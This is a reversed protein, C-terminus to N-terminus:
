KLQYNQPKLEYDTIYGYRFQHQNPMICIKILSVKKLRFSEDQFYDEIELNMTSFLFNAILRLSDSILKLFNRSGYFLLIRM